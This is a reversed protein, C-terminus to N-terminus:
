RQQNIEKPQEDDGQTHGRQQDVTRGLAGERVLFLRHAFANLLFVLFAASFLALPEVLVQQLLRQCKGVSQLQAHVPASQRDHLVEVGLWVGLGRFPDGVRDEGQSRDGGGGRRAAVQAHGRPQNLHMLFHLPGFGGRTRRASRCGRIRTGAGPHAIEEPGRRHHRQRGSPFQPPPEHDFDGQVLARDIERRLDNMRGEPRPAARAARHGIAAKGQPHGSRRDAGIEGTPGPGDIVVLNIGVM